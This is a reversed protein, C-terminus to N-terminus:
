STCKGELMMKHFTNCLSFMACTRPFELMALYWLCHMLQQWTQVGANVSCSCFTVRIYHIRNTHLV